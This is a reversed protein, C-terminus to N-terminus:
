RGGGRSVARDRGPVMREVILQCLITTSGSAQADPRLMEKVLDDLTRGNNSLVTHALQNFANGVAEDHGALYPPGRRHLRTAGAHMPPSRSPNM